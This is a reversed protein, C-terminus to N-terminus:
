YPKGSFSFFTRLLHVMLLYFYGTYQCLHTIAGPCTVVHWASHFFPYSNTTSLGLVDPSFRFKPSWHSGSMEKFLFIKQKLRKKKKLTAKVLHSPRILFSLFSFPSIYTPLTASFSSEATLASATRASSRPYIGLVWM